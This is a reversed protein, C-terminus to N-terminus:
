PKRQWEAWIGVSHRQAMDIEFLLQNTGEDLELTVDEDDHIPTGNLWLTLGVVSNLRLKRRQARNVHVATRLLVLDAGAPLDAPELQGAVRSYLTQWTTEDSSLLAAIDPRTKDLRPSTLVQWQRIFLTKDVAFPGPAGLESLFRVLDRLQQRTLGAMMDAPMASGVKRVLEISDRPLHVFGGTSLEQLVLTDENRRTREYGQYVKGEDTVVQLLSYGEKVQQHPWVVELVLRDLPLTTGIASLDPGIWGGAGGIKHCALCNAQQSRFVLEGAAADGAENIERVLEQVLKESYSPVQAQLGSAKNLTTILHSDFRAASSM